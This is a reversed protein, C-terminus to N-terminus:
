GGGGLGMARAKRLMEEREEPSMREVMRQMEALQEPSMAKMMEEVKALMAAPDDGLGGLGGLAGLDPATPAQPKEAAPFFVIKDVTKEHAIGRAALLELAKNFNLGKGYAVEYMKELPLSVRKAPYGNKELTAVVNAVFPEYGAPAGPTEPTTSM